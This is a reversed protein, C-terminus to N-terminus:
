DVQKLRMIGKAADHLFIGMAFLYILNNFRFDNILLTILIVRFIMGAYASVVEPPNGRKLFLRLVSYILLLLFIGAFAIRFIKEALYPIFKDSPLGFMKIFRDFYSKEAKMANNIRVRENKDLFLNAYEGTYVGSKFISIFNASCKMMFAGPHSELAEFFTEKLLSDGEPSYPNSIGKSELYEAAASDEPIIGWPNDRLNGLSIYMVLGSNSSSLSVEGTHDYYYYIWPLLMVLAILYAAAYNKLSISLGTKNFILVIVLIFAPFALYEPRLNIVLGLVAGGSLTYKLNKGSIGKNILYLFVVVLLLAPGEPAKVAAQAILPLWLPLHIYKPRISFFQYFAYIGALASVFHFLYLLAHSGTFFLSLYVIFTYGWLPFLAHRGPYEGSIYGEGKLLNQAIDLYHHEYIYQQNLHGSNLIFVAIIFIMAAIYFGTDERLSFTNSLKM